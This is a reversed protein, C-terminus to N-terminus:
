RTARTGTQRSDGTSPHDRLSEPRRQGARHFGRKVRHLFAILVARSQGVHPPCATPHRSIGTVGASAAGARAALLARRRRRKKPVPRDPASASRSSHM